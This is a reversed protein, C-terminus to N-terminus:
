NFQGPGRKLDSSEVTPVDTRDPFPLVSDYLVIDWQVINNTSTM